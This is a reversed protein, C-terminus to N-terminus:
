RLTTMAVRRAYIKQTHTDGSENKPRVSCHYRLQLPAEYLIWKHQDNRLKLESEFASLGVAMCKGKVKLALIYLDFQYPMFM